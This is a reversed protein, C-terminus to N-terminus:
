GVFEHHIRGETATLPHGTGGWRLQILEAPISVASEEPTRAAQDLGIPSRTLFGARGLGILEPDLCLALVCVM